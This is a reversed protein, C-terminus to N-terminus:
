DAPAKVPHAFTANGLREVLETQADCWVPRM